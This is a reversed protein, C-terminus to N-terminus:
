NLIRRRKKKLAKERKAGLSQTRPLVAGAERAKSLAIAVSQKRPRGSKVLESINTSITKKSRGRKLPM